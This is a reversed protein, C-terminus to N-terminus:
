FDEMSDMDYGIQSDAHVFFNGLSNVLVESPKEFEATVVQKCEDADQERPMSWLADHAFNVANFQKFVGGAHLRVLAAQVTCHACNSVRFATGQEADQDWFWRMCGFPSILRPSKALLRKTEAPFEKFTKPFLNKILYILEQVEGLSVFGGHLIRFMKEAGGGFAMLFSCRKVKANRVDTHKQKIEKLRKGLDSDNMTLLSDADPEEMYHATVFSHVDSNALRYYAADEALFGQMRAHFGRLDTKVFVHGKEARITGKVRHMLDTIWADNPDYHEPFQQINPRTCSTQGSATGFRFTGHVRGDGNPVWDGNAYTGGLKTLKRIKQVLRLVDDDTEDILAEIAEKGTTDRGTDIHIPVRYGQFRIYELLQQSSNSNFPLLKCLRHEVYSEGEPTVLEFPQSMYGLANYQEYFQTPQCKKVWLGAAKVAERLDKPFGKYGEKPTIPRLELPVLEQLEASLAVEQEAIFERLQAQRDKDVPLGRESLDDLVFSLRYKTQYYGDYLNSKHLAAFLKVGVRYTLDADRAGYWRLTPWVRTELWEDREPGNEYPCSPDVMGKWVGEQPYYFSVCSQLSMLKSPVGKDGHTDDKNSMFNPQLHGWADMLDHTEGNITVGHARLVKRDFLRDFWGWKPNPLALITEIAERREPWPLVLAEGANSSFQVQLIRKDAWTSPEDEGLIDGTEIDYACPLEPDNRLQQIYADVDLSTPSTVYNTPLRAPIGKTAFQHVRRIDHMFAGFLHMAGRALFSPHYTAIMPIGYRSELLFGRLESINGKTLSLEKLPVDGLTLILKPKREEVAADLYQRCQAVAEPPYPAESKCRITNTITLLKRNIGGGNVAKQFVGGSPARPRLPLGDIEEARGLSEAIVMLGSSGDGELLSFGKRNSHLSCGLCTKPLPIM